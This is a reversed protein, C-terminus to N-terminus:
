KLLGHAEKLFFERYSRPQKIFDGKKNIELKHLKAVNEKLELYYISVAEFPITGKKIELRIRDVMYDSHTEVVFTKKGDVGIRALLTGFAAQAEPHLHVEPQQLTLIAGDPSKLSEVVLPIAQSVGYGVDVINHPPGNIEVLLEFRNGKPLGLQKVKLLSFLGSEVGFENLAKILSKKRTRSDYELMFPVHYGEATVEKKYTEYTREPKSRIPAIHNSIVGKGPITFSFGFIPLYERIKEVAYEYESEGISKPKKIEKGLLASYIAMDITIEDLFDVPTTIPYKLFTVNDGAKPAKATNFSLKKFLPKENKSVGIDAEYIGGKKASIVIQINKKNIIAKKLIPGLEEKSKKYEGVYVFDGEETSGAVGLKLIRAKERTDGLKTLIDDYSGLNFPGINFDPKFTLPKGEALAAITALVTTKGTSNKGLLITIPKIEIFNEGPFCRVNEILIEHIEM